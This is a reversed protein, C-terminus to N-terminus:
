RAVTLLGSWSSPTFATQLMSQVTFGVNNIGLLALATNLTVSLVSTQV